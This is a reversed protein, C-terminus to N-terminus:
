LERRGALVVDEVLVRSGVGEDVLRAVLEIVGLADGDIALEM